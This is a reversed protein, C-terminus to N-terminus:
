PIFIAKIEENGALPCLSETPIESLVYDFIWTREDIVINLNNLEDRMETSLPVDRFSIFAGVLTTNAELDLVSDAIPGFYCDLSQRLTKEQGAGQKNLIFFLAIILLFILIYFIFSHNIKM